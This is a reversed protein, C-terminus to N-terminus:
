KKAELLSILRGIQESQQQLTNAQSQNTVTLTTITEILRNLESSPPIVEVTQGQIINEFNSNGIAANSINGSSFMEGEGFYLWKRSIEPFAKLIKELTKETIVEKQNCLGSAYKVSVGMKAAFDEFHNKFYFSRIKAIRESRETLIQGVMTNSDINKEKKNPLIHNKM